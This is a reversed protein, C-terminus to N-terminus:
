RNVESDVIHVFSYAKGNKYMNILHLTALTDGYICFVSSRGRCRLENQTTDSGVKNTAKCMYVGGDEPLTWLIDLAVYGFDNITRFRHGAFLFLCINTLYISSVEIYM